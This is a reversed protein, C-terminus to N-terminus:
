WSFRCHGIHRGHWGLLSTVLTGAGVRLDFALLVNGPALIEVGLAPVAVDLLVCGVLTVLLVTSHRVFIWIGLTEASGARRPLVTIMRFLTPAGVISRRRARRGVSAFRVDGTAAALSVLMVRVVIAVPASPSVTLRPTSELMGFALWVTAAPRRRGSDQTGLGFARIISIGANGPERARRGLSEAGTRHAAAELARGQLGILNIM